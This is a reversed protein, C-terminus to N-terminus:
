AGYEVFIRLLESGIETYLTLYEQGDYPPVLGSADLLPIVGAREQGKMSDFLGIEWPTWRSLRSNHTHLYILVKSNHMAVKLKPAIEDRRAESEELWDVYVKLKKAELYRKFSVVLQRDRSSHSLFVDWSVTEEQMKALVEEFQVSLSDAV